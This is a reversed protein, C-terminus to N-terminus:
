ESSKGPHVHVAQSRSSVIFIVCAILCVEMNAFRKLSPPSTLQRCRAAIALLWWHQTFVFIVAITKRTTSKKKRKKREIQVVATPQSANQTHRLYHRHISKHKFASKTCAFFPFLQVISYVGVMSIIPPAQMRWLDFHSKDPPSVSSIFVLFRKRNAFLIQVIM